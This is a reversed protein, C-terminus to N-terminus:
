KYVGNQTNARAHACSPACANIGGLVKVYSSNSCNTAAVRTSTTEQWTWIAVAKQCIISRKELSLVIECCQKLWKNCSNVLSSDMNQGEGTTALLRSSKRRLRPLEKTFGYCTAASEGYHLVWGHESYLYAHFLRNWKTLWWENTSEPIPPGMPPIDPPIPDPPSLEPSYNLSIQKQRDGQRHHNMPGYINCVRREVIPEPIIPPGMDAPIPLLSKPDTPPMFLPLLPIPLPLMPLEPEISPPLELPLKSMAWSIFMFPLHSGTWWPQNDGGCRDNRM